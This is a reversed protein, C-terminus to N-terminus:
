ILLAGFEFVWSALPVLRPFLSSASSTRSSLSMSVSRSPHGSLPRQSAPSCVAGKTAKPVTVPAYQLPSATPLLIAAAYPNPVSLSSSASPSSPSLRTELALLLSDILLARSSLRDCPNRIWSHNITINGWITKRFIQFKQANVFNHM